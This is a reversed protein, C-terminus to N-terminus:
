TRDFIIRINDGTSLQNYLLSSSYDWRVTIGSVTFDTVLGQATGGILDMAVNSYSSPTGDLNLYRNTADTSSLTYYQVDFM